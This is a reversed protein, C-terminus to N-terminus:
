YFRKEVGTKSGEVVTANRRDYARYDDINPTHKPAHKAARRIVEMLTRKEGVTGM